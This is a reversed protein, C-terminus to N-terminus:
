ESLINPEASARVRDPTLCLKGAPGKKKEWQDKKREGSARGAKGVSGERNEWQGEKGKVGLFDALYEPLRMGLAPTFLAILRRHGCTGERAYWNCVVAAFAQETESASPGRLPGVM